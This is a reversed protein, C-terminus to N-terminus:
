ITPFPFSSFFFALKKRRGAASQPASLLLRIDTTHGKLCLNGFLFPSFVSTTSAPFGSILVARFFTVAVLLFSGSFVLFLSVGGGGPSKPPFFFLAAQLTTFREHTRGHGRSLFLLIPSLTSANLFFHGAPMCSEPSFPPRSWANRLFSLSNM